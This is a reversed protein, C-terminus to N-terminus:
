EVEKAIECVNNPLELDEFKDSYRDAYGDRDLDVYYGTADGTDPDVLIVIFPHESDPKLFWANADWYPKEDNGPKVLNVRVVDPCASIPGASGVEMGSVDPMAKGEAAATKIPGALLMLVALAILVLKM